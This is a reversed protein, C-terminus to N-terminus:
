RLAGAAYVAWVLAVFAFAWVVAITDKLLKDTGVKVFQALWINHTNTPDCVSQLQGVSFFAAMIAAPPLIGTGLLLGAVGAGLGYFNFPGRYLALPALVTFFIVFPLPTNPIVAQLFPAMVAKTPECTMANLVMGIGIFMGIVPAVDKFGELMSATMLSFANKPQVTFAGWIVGALFAPIIPVNFFMILTIPLVPTLLAILPVKPTKPIDVPSAWSYSGRERWAGILLYVVTAVALLLGYHWVYTQVTSPPLNLTGEYFGLIAPNFVGGLAIAFLMMGAAFTASIGAGILIPLVLTGVMIVAGLGTISSFCVAVAFTMLFALRMKHEGAYEATLSILRAAIGTRIVIQSLFSGFVTYMMPAALKSAGDNLVHLCLFDYLSAPSGPTPSLPWEYFSGAALAISFAMMPLALLAPLRRTMMLAAFVLFIILIILGPIIM